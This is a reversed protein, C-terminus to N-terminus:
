SFGWDVGLNWSHTGALNPEQGASRSTTWTKSCGVLPASFKACKLAPLELQHAMLLMSVQVSYLQVEVLLLLLKEWMPSSNCSLRHNSM